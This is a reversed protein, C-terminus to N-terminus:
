GKDLQRAASQACLCLKQEVHVFLGYVIHLLVMHAARQTQLPLGQLSPAIPPTFILFVRQQQSLREKQGGRLMVCVRACLCVCVTIM